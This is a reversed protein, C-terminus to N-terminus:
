EEEISREVVAVASLALVSNKSCCDLIFLLYTITLGKDLSTENLCVYMCAFFM